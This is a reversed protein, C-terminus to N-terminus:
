HVRPKHAGEHPAKSFRDESQEEGVAVQRLDQEEDTRDGCDDTGVGGEPGVDLYYIIIDHRSSHATNPSGPTELSAM